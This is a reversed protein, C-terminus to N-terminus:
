NFFVEWFPIWFCEGRESVRSRNKKALRSLPGLGLSSFFPVRREVFGVFRRDLVIKRHLVFCGTPNWSLDVFSSERVSFWLLNNKEPGNWKENGADRM